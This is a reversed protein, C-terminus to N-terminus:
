ILSRINTPHYEIDLVVWEPYDLLPIIHAINPHDEPVAYWNAHINFWTLNTDEGWMLVFLRPRHVLDFETVKLYSHLTKPTPLKQLLQM